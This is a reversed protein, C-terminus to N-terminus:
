NLIIIFLLACISSISTPLSFITTSSSFILVLNFVISDVVPLKFVNVELAELLNVDNSLALADILVSKLEYVEEVLVLNFLISVLVPLILVKM